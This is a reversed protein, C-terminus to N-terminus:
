KCIYILLIAILLIVGVSIILIVPQKEEHCPYAVTKDSMPQFDARQEVRFVVEGTGYGLAFEDGKQLPRKEGKQLREKEGKHYTGNKSGIDELLFEGNKFTIKAHKGSVSQNTFFIDNDKATRGIRIDEENAELPFEKGIESGKTIFLSLKVFATYRLVVDGLKFKGGDQLMAPRGRKQLSKGKYYTDNTSGIDQLFLERNEFTIKAHKGSVSDDELTLDNEDSRGIVIIGKDFFYKKGTEPGEEITLFFKASM